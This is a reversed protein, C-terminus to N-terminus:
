KAGEITVEKLVSGCRKCVVLLVGDGVGGLKATVRVEKVDYGFCVHCGKSQMPKVTKKKAVM